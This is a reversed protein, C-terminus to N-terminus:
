VSAKYARKKFILIPRFRRYSIPKSKFPQFEMVFDEFNRNAFREALEPKVWYGQFVPTSIEVGGIREKIINRRIPIFSKLLQKAKYLASDSGRQMHEKYWDIPTDILLLSGETELLDLCAALFNNFYEDGPFYQTVSHTFIVDFHTEEKQARLVEVFDRVDGVFLKATGGLRRRASDIQSASFDLGHLDVTSEIESLKELLRGTGCGVELVRLTKSCHKPLKKNIYDAIENFMTDDIPNGAEDVWHDKFPDSVSKSLTEWYDKVSDLKEDM